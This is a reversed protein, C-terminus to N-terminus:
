EFKMILEPDISREGRRIEFHLHPGTARGTSGVEAIKQGQKIEDGENVILKSCHAYIFIIDHNQIMIHKGFDGSSSVQVVKGDCASKIETGSAAGIDLGKHNASVIESSEREGFRSTIVGNVPKILSINEKIYKIDEDDFNKIEEIITEQENNEEILEGGIGLNEEFNESTNENLDDIKNESKEEEIVMNENTTNNFTNNKNFFNNYIGMFDVDYSLVAKTKEIWKNNKGEPMNKIYYFGCYILLCIFIQVLFSNTKSKSKEIKIRNYDLDIKKNQRREAVEEARRIREEVSMIKDM